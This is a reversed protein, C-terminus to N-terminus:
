PTPSASVKCNCPMKWGPGRYLYCLLACALVGYMPVLSVALLFLPNDFTSNEQFWQELGVLTPGPVLLCAGTVYLAMRGKVTANEDLVRRAAYAFPIATVVLYHSWCLPSMLLSFSIMIGFAAESNKVTVALFSSACFLLAVLGYSFFPALWPADILPLVAIGALAPSATGEFLKWGVSWFSMNRFYARHYSAVAPSVYRYYNEIAQFGLVFIAAFNLAAITAFVATFVKAKRYLVLLVLLPWFIIKLSIAGGIAIGGIIERKTTLGRLGVVLLALILLNTQGLALNEWIAGWGFCICVVAATTLPTLEVMLWKALFVVSFVLCCIELALNLCAAVRYSFWGFPISLAVLVPSHPNPHLFTGHPLSYGQIVALTSTPLYPDAKLLIARSTLYDELFDKRWINEDSFSQAVIIFGLLGLVFSLLCFLHKKRSLNQFIITERPM